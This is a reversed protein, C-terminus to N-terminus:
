KRHKGQSNSKMNDAIMMSFNGCDASEQIVALRTKKNPNKKFEEVAEILEIQEQGLRLILYDLSCESWHVKHDNEKLKKEMSKAFEIVAPRLHYSQLHEEEGLGWAAIDVIEDTDPELGGAERSYIQGIIQNLSKRLRENEDSLNVRKLLEDQYDVRLREVEGLLIKIYTPSNAIFYADEDTFCEAVTDDTHDKFAGVFTSEDIYQFWKGETIMSLGDRIVKLQQDTLRQETM